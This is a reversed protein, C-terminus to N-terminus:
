DVDNVDLARLVVVLSPIAIGHVSDDAFSGKRTACVTFPPEDCAFGLVQARVLTDHPPRNRQKALVDAAVGIILRTGEPAVKDVDARNEWRVVRAEDVFLSYLELLAVPGGPRSVSLRKPPSLGPQLPATGTIALVDGARLGSWVSAQDAGFAATSVLLLLTVVLRSM